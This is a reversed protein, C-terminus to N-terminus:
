AGHRWGSQAFSMPEEGRLAVVGSGREIRGIETIPHDLHKGFELVQKRAKAPATFLLEYDDGGTLAVELLAAEVAVARRVADSLPVRAVDIVAQVGSRRAIHGLDGVLGDSVDMCASAVGILGMGAESRPLPLHYRDELHALEAADLGKLEGRLARLGLAADGITGTVFVVDGPEAGGRGHAEGKPGFGFATISVTFPGPTVVTDGGSL